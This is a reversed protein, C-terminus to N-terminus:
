AAQAADYADDILTEIVDFSHVAIIETPIILRAGLAADEDDEDSDYGDLEVVVWDAAFPIGTQTLYGTLEELSDCVSVGHRAMDTCYSYSVQQEPDLLDEVQRTSEQVRYFSMYVVICLLISM